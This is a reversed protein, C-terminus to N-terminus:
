SERKPISCKLQIFKQLDVHDPPEWLSRFTQLDGNESSIVSAELRKGDM